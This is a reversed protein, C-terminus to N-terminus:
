QHPPKPKWSSRVWGSLSVCIRSAKRPSLSDSPVSVLAPESVQPRSPGADNDSNPRGKHFSTSPSASHYSLFVAYPACLLNFQQTYCLSLFKPTSYVCLLSSFPLCSLRSSSLPVKLCLATSCDTKLQENATHVGNAEGFGRLLLTSVLAPLWYSTTISWEKFFRHCGPSHLHTCLCYRLWSSYM